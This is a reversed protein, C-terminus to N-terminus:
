RHRTSSLGARQKAVLHAWRKRLEADSELRENWGDHVRRRARDSHLGHSAAVANAQQPTDEVTAFYEAYQEVSWALAAEVASIEAGVNSATAETTRRFIEDDSAPSPLEATDGGRARLPIDLAAGAHEAAGGHRSPSGAAATDLEALAAQLDKARLRRTPQHDLPDSSFPVGGVQKVAPRTPAPTSSGGYTARHRFDPDSPRPAADSRRALVGQCVARLRALHEVRAAGLERGMFQSWHRDAQEWRAALDQRELQQARSDDDLGLLEATVRAWADFDDVLDLEDGPRDGM